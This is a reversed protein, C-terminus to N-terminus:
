QEFDSKALEISLQLSIPVFDFGTCIRLSYKTM